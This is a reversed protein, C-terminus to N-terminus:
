ADKLVISGNQLNETIKQMYTKETKQFSVVNSFDSSKDSIFASTITSAAMFIVTGAIWPIFKKFMGPEQRGATILGISEVILFICALGKVWPSGIFKLIVQIKSGVGFSSDNTAVDAGKSQAFTSFCCVAAILLFMLLQKHESVWKHSIFTKTKM